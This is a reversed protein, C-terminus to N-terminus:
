ITGQGIELVLIGIMSDVSTITHKLTHRNFVEIRLILTHHLNTSVIATISTDTSLQILSYLYIIYVHDGRIYQMCKRPTVTTLM